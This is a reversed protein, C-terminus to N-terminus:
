ESGPVANITQFLEEVKLPNGKEDNLNFRVHHQMVAVVPEAYELFVTRNGNSLKVSKIEVTDGQASELSKEIAKTPDKVSYLKSGYEKAWKYNWQDVAYSGPDAATEAELPATFTIEVGNPKVSLQTPMVVPKGTYRVRHFAGEKAANSQWVRLGVTYLQGDFPSFRSRMIGSDFRLPFRVYGGQIQGDVTENWTKFLSCKGYSAHLMQGSFPGWKDSTVWVQGGSSNDQNYALWFLPKDYDDPDTGRHATFVHGYFGGPKMVNVRSTPVWNGENDSSTFEDNPGVSMGNPARLGTAIVDLKKGDASVRLFCGHHAHKAQGLDGGKTFYFNGKSDTDLNLCFEHYHDSLAVDNNFNEYFDAEGDKNQDHLRTIQDRGLVHVLGNVVRLGLPQYLGSAFRKWTVNELKDDVGSVIWVDGSLSCVAVTTKDIWDFGSCRIWSKWPNATREPVPITDVVYADTASMGLSGKVKILEPWIPAGAKSLAAMDPLTQPRRLATVFTTLQDPTIKALMVQLTHDAFKSAPINLLVRGNEISLQGVSKAEKKSNGLLGSLFGKRKVPATIVGIALTGNAGNLQAINNEVSGTAGAEECLVVTLDDIGKGIHLTRTFYTIDGMRDVGPMDLVPTRGVTYDLVTYNGHRHIGNWKAWDKPLPGDAIGTHHPVDGRKKDTGRKFEYRPREGDFRKSRDAWGPGPQTSFVIDGAPASNCGLTREGYINIFGGLWGDGYRLTLTDFVVGAKGNDLQIAIGKLSIDRGNFVGSYFPGHDMEQLIADDYQPKPKENKAPEKRAIKKDAKPADAALVAVSMGLIIAASGLCASLPNWNKMTMNLQHLACPFMERVAFALRFRATKSPLHFAFNM